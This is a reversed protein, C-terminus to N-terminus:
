KAATKAPPHRALWQDVQERRARQRPDDPALRDRAAEALAIARAHDRGSRWVADALAHEVAAVREPLLVRDRTIELARELPALAREPAGLALEARGIVLWADLIAADDRGMATSLADVAAQGRALADEGRRFELLAEASVLDIAALRVPDSSAGTLVARGRGAHELAVAPEGRSLAVEALAVHVDAISAADVARPQDAAIALARELVDGADGTRGLSAYARGLQTLPGVLAIADDGRGQAEGVAVARALHELAADVDGLRLCTHGLATLV